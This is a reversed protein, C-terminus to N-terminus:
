PIWRIEGMLSEADPYDLEYNPMGDNHMAISLAKFFKDQPVNEFHEVNHFTPYEPDVEAVSYRVQNPGTLMFQITIDELIITGCIM